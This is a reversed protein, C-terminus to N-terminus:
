FEMWTWGTGHLEMWDYLYLKADTSRRGDWRESNKGLHQSGASMVANGDAESVENPRPPPSSTKAMAMAPNKSTALVHHLGEM